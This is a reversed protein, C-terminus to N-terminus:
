GWHVPVSQKASLPTIYASTILPALGPVQEGGVGGAEVGVLRAPQALDLEALDAGQGGAQLDGGAVGDDVAAVEVDVLALKGVVVGAHQGVEVGVLRTIAAVGLGGEIGPDVGIGATREGATGVHLVEVIQHHAPFVAGHAVVEVADPDRAAAIAAEPGGAVEGIM